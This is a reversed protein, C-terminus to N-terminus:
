SHRKAHHRRQLGVRNAHDGFYHGLALGSNLAFRNPMDCFELMVFAMTAASPAWPAHFSLSRVATDVPELVTVGFCAPQSRLQSNPFHSCLEWISAAVFPSFHWIFDHRAQMLFEVVAGSVNERGGARTIFIACTGQKSTLKCLPRFLQRARERFPAAFQNLQTKAPM